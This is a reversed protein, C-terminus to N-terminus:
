LGLLYARFIFWSGFLYCWVTPSEKASIYLSSLITQVFGVPYIKAANLMACQEEDYCENTVGNEVLLHELEHRAVYYKGEDGLDNRVFVMGNGCFAGNLGPMDEYKVLNIIQDLDERSPEAGQRKAEILVQLTHVKIQNVPYHSPNCVKDSSPNQDTPPCKYYRSGAELFIISVVFLIAGGALFKRLLRSIRKM